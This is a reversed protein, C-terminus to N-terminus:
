DKEWILLATSNQSIRIGNPILESLWKEKILCCRLTKNKAKYEYAMKQLIDFADNDLGPSASVSAYWNKITSVSPLHNNFKSRVYSYARPRYYYLTLCFARVAENYMREQRGFAMCDLIEEMAEQILCLM